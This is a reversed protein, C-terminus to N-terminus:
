PLCVGTSFNLNVVTNSSPLAIVVQYTFGPKAIFSVSPQSIGSNTSVACKIPSTYLNTYVALTSNGSTGSLNFTMLNSVGCSTTVNTIWAYYARSTCIGAPCGAKASFSGLSGSITGAASPGIVGQGPKGASGGTLPLPEYANNLVPPCIFDALVKSAFAHQPNSSFQLSARRSTVEGATNGVVVYYSDADDPKANNIDLSPGSAGPLSMGNRFWQYSLNTFGNVGHATVTLTVSTNTAIVRDLPQVDIVPNNLGDTSFAWNLVYFGAGGVTGDLAIHYVRNSTTIFSVRSRLYGASDDDSAVNTLGGLTPGAYVALLTDFASGATDFVAVGDGPARWSLWVSKGGPVSAHNPEQAERGSGITTGHLSGAPDTFLARNSFLDALVTEPGSPRVVAPGINLAQNADQVTVQYAGYDNPSSIIADMESNTQNPLVFGNLRWQYSLPPAGEATVGLTVVGPLGTARGSPPTIIRLSPSALRFFRSAGGLPLSLSYNGGSFQPSEDVPSWAIPTHLDLTAELTYNICTQTWTLVVNTGKVASLVPPLGTNLALYADDSSVSGFANGVTVSYQGVDKLTVNSLVLTSANAGTINRCNFHWQFSVPLAASTAVSFTVTSHCNTTVSVPQATLAPSTSNANGPTPVSFGTITDAGDPARGQSLNAVQAGFTVSDIFQGGADFLAILDGTNDLTFNVHDAGQLTEDDAWFLMYGHAPISTGPRITFKTPQTPDDTLHWGGINVPAATTNYLEFWDDAHGDAPDLVSGTNVAMWENIVVAPTGPALTFNNFTGTVPKGARHSTVGMGVSMSVPMTPLNISGMQVWSVGNPSRLTSFVNGVRKLRLWANPLGGPTFAAGLAAMTGGNTARVQSAVSNDGPTLPTVYVNVNASSNSVGARALLLAKATTELHDPVGVLASVRVRADFDGDVTRYAFRHLDATGAVDLGGGTVQVTSGACAAESGAPNLAGVDVGSLNLNIIDFHAMSLGNGYRDQVDFISLTATPGLSALLFITVSKGDPRIVINNIDPGNGGNVTYNVTETATGNVDLLEDFCVTISAGNFSGASLAQPPVMDASVTLVAVSSTVTNLVNSAVVMFLAGNDILNLNSLTISSNQFSTSAGPLNTFTVGDGADRLWQLSRPAAGTLSISFTASGGQLVTVNAPQSTFGVPANTDTAPPVGSNIALQVARLFINEGTPTLNERGTYLGIGNPATASERSGGAFYMRYGALINSGGAVPTGSPFGVIANASAAASNDERAYSVRALIVSGNVPAGPLHSTNRDMPETYLQATNTENMTVGGFLYDTAASGPNVASLFTPTDDTIGDGAFWGMRNGAGAITRVLYPSMCILPRTIAVNWNSGQGAPTGTQQFAGSGTARGIIILDNTNIANLELATMPFNQSDSSNFRSVNHGANQLLTVFGQDTFSTGPGSFVGNSAAGPPADSVWLINAAQLPGGGWAVALTTTALGIMRGLRSAWPRPQACGSTSTLHPCTPKSM